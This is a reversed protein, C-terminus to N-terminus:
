ASLIGERSGLTKQLYAGTCLLREQTSDIVQIYEELVLQHVESQMQLKRLYRMHAPTWNSRGTWTHGNRLLFSLLRKKSRSLDDMADTRARCVDRM